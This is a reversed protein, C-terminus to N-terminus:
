HCVLHNSINTKQVSQLLCTQDPTGRALVPMAGHLSWVARLTRVGDALPQYRGVALDGGLRQVGCTGALDLRGQSSESIGHRVAEGFLLANAFGKRLARRNMLNWEQKGGLNFGVGLEQM